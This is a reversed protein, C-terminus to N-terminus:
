KKVWKFFCIFPIKFINGGINKYKEKWTSDPQNEVFEQLIFGNKILTNIYEQIQRSYDVMEEKSGAIELYREKTDFYTNTPVFLNNDEERFMNQIPHPVSFIFLGGVKLVREIEKIGKELNKLHDLIFSATVIDFSKDEFPLNYVNGKKFKAQPCYDKALNIMKESLDIGTGIVGRKIYEKLHIGPGCGVDLLKKNKLNKPVLKFTIPQEMERNFFGSDGKAGTRTFLFNEAIEDYLKELKGEGMIKM